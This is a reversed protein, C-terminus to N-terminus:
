KSPALTKGRGSEDNRRKESEETEIEQAAAKEVADGAEDM